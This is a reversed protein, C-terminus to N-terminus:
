MNEEGKGSLMQEGFFPRIKEYKGFKCECVLVFTMSIHDLAESFIM